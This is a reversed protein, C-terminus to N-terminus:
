RADTRTHVDRHTHTDTQRDTVCVKDILRVLWAEMTDADTAEGALRAGAVVAALPVRPSAGLALYVKKLRQRYAHHELREALVLTRGRALQPHARALAARVQAPRGHRVGAAVAAWAAAEISTGPGAAGPGLAYLAAPRPLLGAYLQLPVLRLLIFRSSIPWRVNPRTLPARACV